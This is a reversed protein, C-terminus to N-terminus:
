FKYTAGFSMATEDIFRGELNLKWNEGIKYDTGLFVGVNDDAKYKEWDGENDKTKAVLDSYKVGFYPVFNGLKYGVYPAVQWEQITAKGTWTEESDAPDDPIWKGKFKNKHSLYQLDCGLLWNDQLAYTGKMGFGYAFANKGTYNVKGQYVGNEYDKGEAEFDAAGLKVYVDLNDLLGYSAKAMIRYMKDIEVDKVEESPDLQWSAGDWEMDRDFIFENDSSLAIKGKGQTEAGGISAAYVTLPLCFLIVLSLVLFKKM